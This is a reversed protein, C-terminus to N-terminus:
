PHNRARRCSLRWRRESAPGSAGTSKHPLPNRHVSHHGRSRNSPIPLAETRRRTFIPEGPPGGAKHSKSGPLKKLFFKKSRNYLKIMGIDQDRVQFFGRDMERTFPRIGGRGSAQRPLFGARRLFLFDGEADMPYQLGRGCYFGFSITNIKPATRDRRMFIDTYPFLYRHLRSSKANFSHSDRKGLLRDSKSFVVSVFARPSKKIGEQSISELARLM